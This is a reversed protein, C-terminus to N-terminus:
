QFQGRQKSRKRARFGPSSQLTVKAGITATGTSAHSRKLANSTVIAAFSTAVSGGIDAAVYPVVVNPAPQMALAGNQSACRVTLQVAGTSYVSRCDAQVSHM